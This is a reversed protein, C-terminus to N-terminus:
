ASSSTASSRFGDEEPMNLDLVILDPEEAITKRLSAGGDCLSVNFGHMRLYDGVM